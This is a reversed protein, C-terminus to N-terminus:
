KGNIQTLFFFSFSLRKDVKQNPSQTKPQVKLFRLNFDYERGFNCFIHSGSLLLYKKDLVITLVVIFKRIQTIQSFIAYFRIQM